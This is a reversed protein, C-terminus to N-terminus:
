GRAYEPIEMGTDLKILNILNKVYKWSSSNKRAKEIMRRSPYNLFRVAGDQLQMITNLRFMNYPNSQIQQIYYLKELLEHEAEISYDFDSSTAVLPVIEVVKTIMIQGDIIEHQFIMNIYHIIDMVASQESFYRGTGILMNKLRPVTTEPNTIHTTFWAAVSVSQVLQIFAFLANGDRVEGINAVDVSMRLLTKVVDLLEKGNISQGEVIRKLPYKQMVHQEFYDEVTGIHLFDDLLEYMVNLTTTKGTGLGGQLCISEGSKVLAIILTRLKDETILDKFAADSQNFIRICLNRASFYPKQTVTIRAGDGRHCLIEPHSVDLQPCHKEFSIARDQIVRAECEEIQLFSLWIKNGCWCYIYKGNNSFGVENIDSYALIDIHKLGFIEEYLRQTIIEIKDTFSLVYGENNYIYEIDEESYEYRRSEYDGTERTKCCCAYKSLISKFAGDRGRSEGTSNKYLIIEFKERPTLNDPDNFPMINDILGNTEDIKVAEFISEDDLEGNRSELYIDFGTLISNKIHAKIIDRAEPLGSTSKEKYDRLLSIIKREQEDVPESNIFTNIYKEMHLHLSDIILYKKLDLMVGGDTFAAKSL